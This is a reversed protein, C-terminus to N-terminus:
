RINNNAFDRLFALDDVTPDKLRAIMRHREVQGEVRAKEALLEQRRANQKIRSARNIEMSQVINNYVEDNETSSMLGGSTLDFLNIMGNM